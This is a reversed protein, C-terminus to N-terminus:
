LATVGGTIHVPRNNYKKSIHQEINVQLQKTSEVLMKVLPELRNQEVVAETRKNAAATQNAVIKDALKLNQELSGALRDVYRPSERILALHKLKLSNLSDLVGLVQSMMITLQERSIETNSNSSSLNFGIQSQNSGSQLEVLRQKLFAELEMLEDIFANRTKHYDLLTLAENDRAIGGEVGDSEVVIDVDETCTLGELGLEHADNLMDIQGWDIDGTELEVEESGFDVGGDGFDIEEQDATVDASTTDILLPPEEIRLPPEGYRWEYVTTNGRKNIFHLLPICDLDEEKTGSLMQRIFSQYYDIASQILQTQKAIDRYAQPLNDLLKILEKKISAGEIGLQRCLNSYKDRFDQANKACEAEKRECENQVQECKVIAKKVAPIEYAVNRMVMQSAEALFVNDREYLGIIEQWDKMRQSGYRGFLGRSDAETEKLVDVIKICHFYNIHSGALLHQIEKHEPMDQIACNIKERIIAIQQPWTKTCHRRSILWDLLKSTQIDIPINQEQQM